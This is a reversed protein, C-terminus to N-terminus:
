LLCEVERCVIVGLVKVEVKSGKTQSQFIWERCFLVKNKNLKWTVVSKAIECIGSPTMVVAICLYSSGVDYDIFPSSFALFFGFM